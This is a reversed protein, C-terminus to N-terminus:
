AAGGRACGALAARAVASVDRDFMVGAIRRARRLDPPALFERRLRRELDAADVISFRGEASLLEIPAFGGGRVGVLVSARRQQDLLQLHWLGGALWFAASAGRPLGRVEWGPLRAIVERQNGEHLAVAPALAALPPWVALSPVQSRIVSMFNIVVKM